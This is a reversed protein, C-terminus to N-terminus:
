VGPVKTKTADVKAEVKAETKTTEKTEEVKTETASAKKGYKMLGSMKTNGTVKTARTIQCSMVGTADLDTFSFPRLTIVENGSECVVKLFDTQSTIGAEKRAKAIAKQQDAVAECLEQLSTYGLFDVDEVDFTPFSYMRKNEPNQPNREPRDDKPICVVRSSLYKGVVALDILGEGGQSGDPAYLVRSILLNKM